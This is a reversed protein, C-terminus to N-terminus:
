REQGLMLYIESSTPRLESVSWTSSLGLLPFSVPRGSQLSLNEHFIESLYFWGSWALVSEGRESGGALDCLQDYFQLSERVWSRDQDELERPLESGQHLQHCKAVDVSIRLPSMIIPDNKSPPEELYRPGDYQSFEIEIFSQLALLCSGYYFSEGDKERRNHNGYKM